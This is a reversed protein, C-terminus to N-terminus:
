NFRTLCLRFLLVSLYLSLSIALSLCTSMCIFSLDFSDYDSQSSLSLNDHNWIKKGLRKLSKQPFNQKIGDASISYLSYYNLKIHIMIHIMIHFYIFKSPSVPWFLHGRTMKWTIVANVRAGIHEDTVSWLNQMIIQIWFPHDSINIKIFNYQHDLKSEFQCNLM